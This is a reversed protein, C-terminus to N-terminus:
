QIRYFKHMIHSLTSKPVKTGLPLTPTLESPSTVTLYYLKAGLSLNKGVISYDNRVYKLRVSLIGLQFKWGVFIFNEIPQKQSWWQRLATIYSATQLDIYQTTPPLSKKDCMQYPLVKYYYWKIHPKLTEPNHLLVYSRSYVEDNVSWSMQGTRLGRNWLAGTLAKIYTLRPPKTNWM